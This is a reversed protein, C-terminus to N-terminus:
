RADADGDWTGGAVDSPPPSPPPSPPAAAAVGGACRPTHLQATVNGDNIGDALDLFFQTLPSDLKMTAVNLPHASLDRANKKTLVQHATTHSCSAPAPAPVM